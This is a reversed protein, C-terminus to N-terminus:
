GGSAGAGFDPCLTGRHQPNGGFALDLSYGDAHIPPHCIGVFLANRLGLFFLLVLVVLIVGSIISNELNEVETRTNDSQDNFYTIELDEPLRPMVEAVTQRVGDATSLLNEGSKKIIDLSIVPLGNARAISTPDEYGFTVEAIDRLYVLRQRENKVITNALEQVDEYEGVVRIARRFGNTILEGGSLTLNEGAIANEIDQFSIELSEMKRVDVSVEVEREQIGKLDVDSVGDVNELEDELLEAYRRLEEPPYDGSVNVTVIPLQSLNIELVAPDTDLDTPLEPKAQDVADKTRRVADDFDEDSNFEVTIVSFDQISTSRIVKVGDIGQLEKEIPRTVLSEIDAASNGFYPTNIYVQPFDVEPFQEKPVQDYAFLGFILIMIALLFVSTGNDVALNTLGFTRKKSEQNAM